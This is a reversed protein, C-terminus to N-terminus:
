FFTKMRLIRSSVFLSEQMERLFLIGAKRGQLEAAKLALAALYPSSLPQDQELWLSGDCPM